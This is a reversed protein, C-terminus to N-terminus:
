NDRGLLGLSQTCLGIPTEALRLRVPADLPRSALPAQWHAEAQPRRGGSMCLTIGSFLRRPKVGSLPNAVIPPHVEPDDAVDAMNLGERRASRNAFHGAKPPEVPSTTPAFSLTDRSYSQLVTGYSKGLNM